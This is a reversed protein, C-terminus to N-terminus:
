ARLRERAPHAETYPDLEAVNKQLWMALEPFAPRGYIAELDPGTRCFGQARNADLTEAYHGSRAPVSLRERGM